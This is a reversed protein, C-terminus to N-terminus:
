GSVKLTLDIADLTLELRGGLPLIVDRAHGYQYSSSLSGGIGHFCVQEVRGGLCAEVLKEFHPRRLGVTCDLREASLARFVEAEPVHNFLARGVAPPTDAGSDALPARASGSAGGTMATRKADEFQRELDVVRLTHVPLHRLQEGQMVFFCNAALKCSWGEDAALGIELARVGLQVDYSAAGAEDVHWTLSRPTATVRVIAAHRTLPLPPSGSAIHSLAFQGDGLDQVRHSAAVM